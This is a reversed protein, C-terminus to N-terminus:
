ASTIPADFPMKALVPYIAPDFDGPEWTEVTGSEATWEIGVCAAGGHQHGLHAMSRPQWPYRITILNDTMEKGRNAENRERELRECLDCVERAGDPDSALEIAADTEPTDSMEKERNTKEGREEPCEPNTCDIGGEGDAYIAGNKCTGCLRHPPIKKPNM